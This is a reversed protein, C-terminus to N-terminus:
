VLGRARLIETIIPVPTMMHDFMMARAQQSDGSLLVTVLDKHEDRKLALADTSFVTERLWLQRYREVQDLMTSRLEMLKDSGCGAAIANHFAKHRSDWVSLMEEASQVQTVRSLTHAAAIIGAEWNDGGKQVALETVLAELQARAYYLDQLQAVSMPAVRFGKQSEATVLREAVLRSLAERMPGAGIEYRAKLSSMLLKDGPTFHGETIDRKLRGYAADALNGKEETSTMPERFMSNDGALTYRCPLPHRLLIFYQYLDFIYINKFLTM